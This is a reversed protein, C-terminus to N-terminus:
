LVHATHLATSEKSGTDKVSLPHITTVESPVTNKGIIEYKKVCISWKAHM